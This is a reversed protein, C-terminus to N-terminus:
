FETSNTPKERKCTNLLKPGQLLASCALRGSSAKPKMKYPLSLGLITAMLLGGLPHQKNNTEHVLFVM